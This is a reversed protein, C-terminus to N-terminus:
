KKQYTCLLEEGDDKDGSNKKLLSVHTDDTKTFIFTRPKKTKDDADSIVLENDKEVFLSYKRDVMMDNDGFELRSGRCNLISNKLSFKTCGTLILPLLLVCIKFKLM